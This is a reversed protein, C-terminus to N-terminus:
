FALSALKNNDITVFKGALLSFSPVIMVHRVMELFIEYHDYKSSLLKTVFLYKFHCYYDSFFNVLIYLYKVLV